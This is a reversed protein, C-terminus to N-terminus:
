IGVGIPLALPFGPRNRRAQFDLPRIGASFINNV